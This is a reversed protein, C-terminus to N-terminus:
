ARLRSASSKTLRMRVADASPGNFCGPFLSPGIAGDANPSSSIRSPLILSKSVGNQYADTSKGYGEIYEIVEIHEILPFNYVLM